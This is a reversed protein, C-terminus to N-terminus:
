NERGSMDGYEAGSSFLLGGTCSSSLMRVSPWLNDVVEEGAQWAVQPPTFHLGLRWGPMFRPSANYAAAASLPALAIPTTM